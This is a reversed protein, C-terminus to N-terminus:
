SHLDSYNKENKKDQSSNSDCTGGSFRPTRVAQSLLYLILRLCLYLVTKLVHLIQNLILCWILFSGPVPCLVLEILLSTELILCPCYMDCNEVLLDLFSFLSLFLCPQRCSLLLSQVSYCHLREDVDQQILALVISQKTFSV